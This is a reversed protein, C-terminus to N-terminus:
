TLRELLLQGLGLFFFFGCVDTCTTVFVSSALAPDIELWRLVIPVLTGAAAAVILNGLMAAALVVGFLVSGKWLFAVVAVVIGLIMGNAVGVMLEKLIAKGTNSWRLEGLAIGRVMVTLTQSAANGGMGSVVPMFVALIALRQIAGEFLSVVAAALFATALNVVLWPLRM